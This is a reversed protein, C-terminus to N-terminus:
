PHIVARAFREAAAHKDSLTLSTDNMTWPSVIVNTVGAEELPGAISPDPGGPWGVIRDHPGASGAESRLRDILSFEALTEDVLGRMPMYGDFRSARRAAAESHGGIWIPLPATPVPFMGSRGFDYHQGHHEAYGDEWFDRLIDLMEDMRHGRSEWQEGVTEFEDRLWGVGTGLVLRNDSLLAVTALQKALAFPNRLPVVLVFTAFRLTTTVAAMAGFTIFPDVFQEEPQLPYGSPHPTRADVPVVIHDPMVVGEFGAAEAMRAHDLLQDYPEFVLSLWHKM